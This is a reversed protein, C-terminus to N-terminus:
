KKMLRLKQLRMSKEHREQQEKARIQSFVRDTEELRKDVRRLPERPGSVPLNNDTMIGRMVGAPKEFTSIVFFTLFAVITM